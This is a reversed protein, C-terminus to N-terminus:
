NIEKYMVMAAPHIRLPQDWDKYRTAFEGRVQVAVDDASKGQKKLEAVRAQLALLFNRYDSIISADTVPYHAGIVTKPQLKDLVDLSTLWSRASSQPTAFAPLLGKMALDGSFLVGDGEVFAVTDGRTHGPGLRMIHVKVGGLDVIKEKEFIEAPTRFKAGQLIEAMASSRNAFTAVMKMGMEEVDLQQAAARIVKANEPFAIDGTTHEPHFHTNVVYIESGKSVKKLERLVAQGSKMGMGPDVVLAGKTGVIIGVNPVQPVKEDPILYVHSSIKVTTGDKVVPWHGAPPAPAQAPTLPSAAALIAFTACCALIRPSLNQM